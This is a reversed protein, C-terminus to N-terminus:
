GKERAFESPSLGTWKKFMQSFYSINDVGVAVCVESVQEGQKLLEKAKDIRISTVFAQFNIGTQQKFMQSLYSKNLHFRNAVDSLTLMPDQYNHQVYSIVAKTTSSYHQNALGSRSAFDGIMMLLEQLSQFAEELTSASEIRRFHAMKQEQLDIPNWGSEDLKHIILYGLEVLSKKLSYPEPVNGKDIMNMILELIQGSLADLAGQELFSRIDKWQWVLGSLPPAELGIYKQSEKRQPVQSYFLAAGEDDVTRSQNLVGAPKQADVLKLAAKNLSSLVEEYTMSAKLIYDTAGLQLSEKVYPFDSYSSLVIVPIHKCRHQMSRILAIGDMGPMRIDTVVIDPTKSEILNLAEEGDGAEGVICFGHQEWNTMHIFGKRLLKEDDVILLKIL